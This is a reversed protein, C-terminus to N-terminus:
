ILKAALRTREPDRFEETAPADKPVQENIQM